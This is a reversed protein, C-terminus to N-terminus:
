TTARRWRLRQKFSAWGSRIDPLLSSPLFFALVRQKRDAERSIVDMVETVDSAPDADEGLSPAFRAREVNMALRHLATLADADQYLLPAVARERARPTMSGTWPLRLDRIHDRLELWAAEAAAAPEIPRHLRSRRVGARLAAPTFVVILLGALVLWGIPPLPGSGSGSGASGAAEDAETEATREPRNEASATPGTTTPLSTPVTPAATQKAYAPFPAGLGPTPEFRVWGVGQFYLEPWAHVNDSTFIWEDNEEREPELFGVVVRSPIGLMRAMMAMTAAFHQCFGRREELFRAMASYGYGYAADLDYRFEGKARFFSQLVLAKDYNTPADATLSRATDAVVQPVDGPVETYLDPIEPTLGDAARLQEPTPDIEGYSVRYDSHETLVDEDNTTVVVTQDRDVYAFDPGATITSANYPVPLWRSDRPFQGTLEFRDTYPESRVDRSMGIPLPLVLNLPTTTENNIALPRAKWADPLPDDLAVLRVYEPQVDGSVRLFDVPDKRNLSNALGVMPDQFSLTTGDGGTGGSGNGDLISSPLTPLFAPLVVAVALAIVSVRRGTSNLGSTDIRNPDRPNVQRSVLRGWHVLRDREDAMLMTIYAAGGALFALFPVGDPLVAVPITYLALLPLGALPVRNLSVAIVDVLLAILTVAFVVMLLLGESPPAPAPYNQAVEAGSRLIADIGTFTERTPILGLTLDDGFRLLLVEFLVVVQALVVLITPLRLARLGIGALVVFGSLLASVFLYDKDELAPFFSLSTAITALWGLLAMRVREPIVNNM